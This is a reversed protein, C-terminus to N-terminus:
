ETLAGRNGAKVTGWSTADIGTQAPGVGTVNLRISFVRQSATIWLLDGALTCNSPQAPTPILGMLEGNASFVWIGRGEASSGRDFSAAYVNGDSDVTMGDMIRAATAFLRRNALGGDPQIDFSWIEGVGSPNDNTVYLTTGDGSQVIGNPLDTDSVVLSVAGDPAIRYVGIVPQPRPRPAFFPPDTFYVSGDAALFLDNPSNFRNGEYQGALVTVSGDLETRTVRGSAGECAHLRGRADFVLGNAVDTRSTRFTDVAGGRSLQLIRGSAIDTFFLDGDANVAPGETFAFGTAVQELTAGDAVTSPLAIEQGQAPPTICLLGILLSLLQVAHNSLPMM